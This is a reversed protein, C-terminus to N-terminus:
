AVFIWNVFLTTLVGLMLAFFSLLGRDVAPRRGWWGLVMFVPFLPLVYRIVSMVASSIPVLVLILVYIAYGEGLRRWVFPVMALAGLTAGVNLLRSLNGKTLGVELLAPLERKLVALPGINQRGWAAQVEIFAFPREFNGRLFLMYFLLGLPIAGIIILEHWHHKLAGGLNRWTASRHIRLISWGHYRLWEWLVLALLLVGLNRTASALMGALAALLWNHRRAFYMTAVTLLLYVSETYVASFFFATPFFALYFVTRQAAGRDGFELEALRYLFVLALFFALNSVLFGALVFNDKTLRAMLRMLLPYVPFFAVNSQRLPQYNYGDRAIQVYWQSDWKAWYSLFPSEPDAVWHGEETPLFIDGVFAAAFIFLRSFGFALAPQILWDLGDLWRHVLLGARTSFLQLGIWTTRSRAALNHM